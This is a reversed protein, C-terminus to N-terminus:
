SARGSAHAALARDIFQSASGLYGLPDFARALHEGDIGARAVDPDNALVEALQLGLARARLAATRIAAEAAQRGLKPTLETSLREALPLGGAATFNTRMREGNVQLGGLVERMWSAASGVLTVLEALTEWEAHWSGAGREHEQEAALFLTAVLGPVRRTCGLAAVSGVPNQKHPLASSGGRGEGAPERVEDVEAQALLIVDRALKGLIAGAIGCASALELIPARATHWPLLPARLGLEAALLAVVQLGSEGLPALTGAAGGYQVPLQECVTAIRRRADDLAALWGAVKLGFTIPTAPQLLTRGLMLTDRHQQAHGACAEAAAHLDVLVHALARKSVLMVATDVVDQTTAGRHLASAAELPLYQELEKVLAPVPSGAASSGAALVALSVHAPIAADAVAQAAAASVVGAGALARALGVEFDLFAQLWAADRFEQAAGGRAFVGAFLDRSGASM